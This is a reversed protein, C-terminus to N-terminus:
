PTLVINQWEKANVWASLHKTNTTAVVYDATDLGLIRVQACLITDGDLADDSALPTGTNRSQAWLLAAAELHGTNLPVLRGPQFCYSVLRTRQATAGRREIERLTEYYAIACVLIIAGARECDTLWARCLESTTPITGCRGIHVM